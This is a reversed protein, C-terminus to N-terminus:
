RHGVATKLRLTVKRRVTRRNGAPDTVVASLRLTLKHELALRHRLKAPLALKV